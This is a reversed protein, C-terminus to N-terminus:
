VADVPGTYEDPLGAAENAASGSRPPKTRARSTELEGESYNKKDATLRVRVKEGPIAGRVFCIKGDPRRGVSRGGFAFGSINIESVPLTM